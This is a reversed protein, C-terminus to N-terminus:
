LCVTIVEENIAYCLENCERSFLFFLQLIRKCLPRLIRMCFHDCCVEAKQVPKLGPYTMFILCLAM